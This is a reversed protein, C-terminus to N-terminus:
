KTAKGAIIYVRIAVDYPEIKVLIHKLSYHVDKNKLSYKSEFEMIYTDSTILVQSM